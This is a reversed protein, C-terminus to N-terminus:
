SELVFSSFVRPDNEIDITPGYSHAIRAAVTHVGHQVHYARCLAEGMRKSEAYCNSENLPDLVGYMDEKVRKQLSEYIGYISGSSFFLFKAKNKVALELMNNTGIINPLIVDVPIATFHETSALSAAHIIFDCETDISANVSQNINFIRDTYKGFRKVLKNINRSLTVIKIDFGHVENLYLMFYVTYSALMGYAGTVLVTKGGALEAYDGREYINAMDERVIPSALFDVM